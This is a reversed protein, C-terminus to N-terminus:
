KVYHEGSGDMSNCLTPGGNKKRSYLIGNHLHVVTKKIWENGSPCQPKKQCKAITFQAAIFMPTCLNKQIPTEPNKHYLSSVNFNLVFQCYGSLLQSPTISSFSPLMKLFMQRYLVYPIFWLLTPDLTPLLSPQPFHLCNYKFLLLFFFTRKSSTHNM